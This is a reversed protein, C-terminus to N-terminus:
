EDEKGRNVGSSGKVKGALVSELCVIVESNISRRNEIALTKLAKYVPLPFRIQIGKSEKQKEM